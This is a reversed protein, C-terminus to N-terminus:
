HDFIDVIGVPKRQDDLVVLCKIKRQHMLQEADFWMEDAGIVKPSSTMYREVHGELEAAKETFARRLDGDTLIGALHGPEDLVLAVGLRGATMTLMTDRLTTGLPVCPLERHMVDSVRTLLRRGLSGGPHFRAFDQPQFDRAQMLAVALADGMAMTVLTSTTPALNLPCAEREVSIDLTWRAAKALTSDLHGTMAIVTNGFHRLAPLLRLVEDTEGSNSILLIVDGPCIMGLDGHLAEAPHLFFSPTGTSALTASIKRGVLGSKGMGSVVLRGDCHLLLEVVAEFPEAIRPVLAQVASAQVALATKATELATLVVAAKDMM